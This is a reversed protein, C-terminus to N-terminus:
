VTLELCKRNLERSERQGGGEKEREGISLREKRGREEEERRIM